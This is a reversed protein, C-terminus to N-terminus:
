ATYLSLFAASPAGRGLTLALHPGLALGGGPLARERHWMEVELTSFGRGDFPTTVSKLFLAWPAILSGRSM